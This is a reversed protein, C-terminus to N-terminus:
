GGRGLFQFASTRKPWIAVRGLNPSNVLCPVMLQTFVSGFQGKM